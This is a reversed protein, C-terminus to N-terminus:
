ISVSILLFSHAKGNRPNGALLINNNLVFDIIINSKKDTMVFEIHYLSKMYELVIFGLNGSALLGIRM